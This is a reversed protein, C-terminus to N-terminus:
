SGNSIAELRKRVEDAGAIRLKIADWLSITTRIQVTVVANTKSAM